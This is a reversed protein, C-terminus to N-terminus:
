DNILVNVNEMENFLILTLTLISIGALISFLKLSLTHNNNIIANQMKVLTDNKNLFYNTWDFLNVDNRFKLVNFKKKLFNNYFDVNVSKKLEISFKSSINYKKFFNDDSLYNLNYVKIYNYNILDLISAEITYKISFYKLLFYNTIDLILSWTNGIPIFFDLFIYIVYVRFLRFM